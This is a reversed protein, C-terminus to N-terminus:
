TYLHYSKKDKNDCDQYICNQEVVFVESRIKLIRYMEEVTLEKFERIYWDM